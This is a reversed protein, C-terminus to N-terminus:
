TRFIAVWQELRVVGLRVHLRLQTRKGNTHLLNCAHM